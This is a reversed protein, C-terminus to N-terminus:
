HGYVNSKHVIEDVPEEKCRITNYETDSVTRTTQRKQTEQIIRLKSGDPQKEYNVVEITAVGDVIYFYRESHYHWKKHRSIVKGSNDKVEKWTYTKYANHHEIHKSTPEFNVEEYHTCSVFTVSAFVAMVVFLTLFLKKM